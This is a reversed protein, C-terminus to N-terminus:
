LLLVCAQAAICVQIEETMALGGCGEFNKEALFVQTHGELERRDPEPLRGYLPVRAELIGRWAPPFPTSQM